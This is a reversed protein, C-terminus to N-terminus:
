ILVAEIISIEATTPIIRNLKLGAEELLLHYQQKTREKGGIVLMMLDLWKGFCPENNVPIVTEVILVKGGKNMAAACNRLIAAADDDSWDHIIHRLIYADAGKTVSRFFDGGELRVRDILGSEVFNSKAREVVQPMDFLVGKLKPHSNLVVALTSGNGGGIDVVTQFGSFDYAEIMPQTEGGHIGTMAADFIKGEQPHETLYEFLSKGFTENFAANGTNISYDLHGWARYPAGTIMLVFSKQSHPHDSRLFEALPTLSFLRHEDESFIGVSALARLLRYLAGSKVNLHEALEEASQSKSKLHDAVNLVAACRLAQSIWYGSAMQGLRQASNIQQEQNLIQNAM